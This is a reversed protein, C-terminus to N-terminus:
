PIESGSKAGISELYEVMATHGKDKAIDLPTMGYGDKVNVNAGYSLFHEAVDIEGDSAARHLPTDSFQRMDAGIFGVKYGAQKLTKGAYFYVAFLPIFGLSGAFPFICLVFLVIAVTSCHLSKALRVVCVIPFIFIGLFVVLGWLLSVRHADEIKAEIAADVPMGVALIAFFMIPYFALISWSSLRHASAIRRYYDQASTVRDAGM